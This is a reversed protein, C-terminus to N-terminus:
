RIGTDYDLQIDITTEAVNVEIPDPTGVMGDVSDAEVRYAGPPLTVSFEGNANTILQAVEIGTVDIIHITAGEVPRPACNPDNASVVPCSPGALAVGRIGVMVGGGTDGGGTDGGGTDGGGTDGGGAVPLNTPVEPGNERDLTVEGSGTVAYFWRHRNICGAPCDGWGIEVMVEYGDGVPTVEYFCCQGILDPNKPVLAAFRSDAALVLAAAAEPTTVPSTSPSPSASPPPSSPIASPSPSGTVAPGCAALLASVALIPLLLRLTPHTRTTRNM